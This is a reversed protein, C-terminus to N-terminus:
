CSADQVQVKQLMSQLATYALTVCQARTPGLELGILEQLQAITYTRAERFSKGEMHEALLAAAAQSLVCGSIQFAITTLREETCYAQFLLKDGCSPHQVEGLLHPNDLVRRHPSEQARRRLQMLIDSNSNMIM